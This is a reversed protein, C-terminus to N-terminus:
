LCLFWLCISHCLSRTTKWYGNEEKDWDSFEWTQEPQVAEQLKHLWTVANYAVFYLCIYHVCTETLTKFAHSCAKEQRKEEKRNLIYIPQSSLSCGGQVVLHFELTLFHCFVLCLSSEWYNQLWCMLDLCGVNVYPLLTSRDKLIWQQEQDEKM